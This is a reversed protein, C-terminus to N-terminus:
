KRVLRSFGALRALARSAEDCAGALDVSGGSAMALMVRGMCAKAHLRAGAFEASLAEPRASEPAALAAAAVRANAPMVSCTYLVSGVDSM